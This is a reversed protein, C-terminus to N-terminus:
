SLKSLKLSVGDMTYTITCISKFSGEKWNKTFSLCTSYITTDFKRPQIFLHNSYIPELVGKLDLFVHRNRFVLFYYKENIVLWYNLNFFMANIGEILTTAVELIHKKM